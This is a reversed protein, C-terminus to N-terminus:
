GRDKRELNHLPLRGEWGFRWSKGVVECQSLLGVLTRKSLRILNAGADDLAVHRLYSNLIRFESEHYPISLLSFSRFLRGFGSILVIAPIAKM